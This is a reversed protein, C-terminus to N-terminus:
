DGQERALLLRFLVAMEPKKFAIVGDDFETSYAGTFDGAYGAEEMEFIISKIIPLLAWQKRREFSIQYAYGMNALATTVYPLYLHGTGLIKEFSHYRMKTFSDAGFWNLM